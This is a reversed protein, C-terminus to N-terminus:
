PAPAAVSVRTIEVGANRLRALVGDDGLVEQAPLVAFANGARLESSLSGSHAELAQQEAARCAASFAEAGPVDTQLATWLATEDGARYAALTDRSIARAADVHDIAACLADAALPAGSAMMRDVDAATFLGTLPAGSMQRRIAADHTPSMRMDSLHGGYADTQLGEYYLGIAWTPRLFRVIGPTVADDIEDTLAALREPGLARALSGSRDIAQAMMADHMEEETRADPVIVVRAFQFLAAYDHPLAESLPCGYELAALVYSPQTDTTVRYLWTPTEPTPEPTPPAVVPVPAVTTPPAPPDSCAVLFLGALAALAFRTMARLM